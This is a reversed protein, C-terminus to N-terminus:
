VEDEAVIWPEARAATEWKRFAPHVKVREMYGLTTPERVLNYVDFRNVVPAYM